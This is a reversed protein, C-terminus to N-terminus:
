GPRDSSALFAGYSDAVVTTRGTEHSWLVVVPEAAQGLVAYDFCYFDGTGFQAFPLWRSFGAPDACVNDQWAQWNGEFHRVISEWTKRPDRADFVPFVELAGLAKGNHDLLWEVFSGPLTRGLATEASRIAEITTGIVRAQGM